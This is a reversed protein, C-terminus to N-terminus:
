SLSAILREGRFRRLGDRGALAVKKLVGLQFRRRNLSGPQISNKRRYRFEAIAIREAVIARHDLQAVGAHLSASDRDKWSRGNPGSM